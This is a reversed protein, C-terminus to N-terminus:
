VRFRLGQPRFGLSQAQLGELIASCEAALREGRLRSASALEAAQQKRPNPCVLTCMDSIMQKVVLACVCM